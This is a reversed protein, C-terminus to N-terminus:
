IEKNDKCLNSKFEAVIKEEYESKYSGDILKVLAEDVFRSWSEKEKKVQVPYYLVDNVKASEYDGIADGVMLVNDKKYGKELLKSICFAKTGVNQALVIDVYELLESELWEELVAIENASSVIAIDAVERAKIIGEKVGEFSKKEESKLAKISTNVSNSWELAKRICTVNGTAKKLERELSENSLEKTEKVWNLYEELGEINMYKENIETLAIALGKFRNIGRTLTYLNVENWSTLIDEKWKHLDWEEVMIPGFCKIHKVDMTDIACGDSDICILFPKKLTFKDLVSNM